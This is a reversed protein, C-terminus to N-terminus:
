NKEIDSLLESFINLAEKPTYGLKLYREIIWKLTIENELITLSKNIDKLYNSKDIKSKDTLINILKLANSISIIKNYHKKNDKSIIKVTKTYKDININQKLYKNRLHGWYSAPSKPNFIIKILENRTLYCIKAQNHYIITITKNNYKKRYIYFDPM